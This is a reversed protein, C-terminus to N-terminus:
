RAGGGPGGWPGPPPAAPARAALASRPRCGRPPSSRGRRRRRARGPVQRHVALGPDHRALAHRHVPRRQRVPGSPGREVRGRHDFPHGLVQTPGVPEGRVLGGCPDSSGPCPRVFAPSRRATVRSSQGDCRLRAQPPVPGAPATEAWAGPRRPSCPRDSAGPSRPRALSTSPWPPWSRRASSRRSPPRGRRSAQRQARARRSIMRAVGRAPEGLASSASARM